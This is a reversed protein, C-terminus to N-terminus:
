GNRWRVLFDLNTREVESMAGVIQADSLAPDPEYWSQSELYSNMPEGSFVRGHRAYLENIALQIEGTTLGSVDAETLLRQDSPLAWRPAPTPQSHVASPAEDEQWEALAALITATGAEAWNQVAAPVTHLAEAARGRLTMWTGSQWLWVALVAATGAALPAALGKRGKGCFPCVPNHSPFVHRRDARCRRLPSYYLRTLAQVWEAATPRQCIVDLATYATYDFARVFLARIDDPLFGMRPSLPSVARGRVERVYACNGNVIEGQETIGSASSMTQNTTVCNFPHFGNFLLRFIQIALSFRDSEQTFHAGPSALNGCTQLEPALVEALGVQCPFHEGTQPSWIDCSDADVVTVQGRANVMLNKQNMDGLVIGRQHLGDVVRALNLAVLVSKRWTYRFFVKDQEGQRWVDYLRHSATALPMVYGVMAGDRFLVDVPWAVRLWLGEWAPVGLSLMCELKRRLQERHGPERELTREHYLKAVLGPCFRIRYVAGEGGVGDSLVTGLTYNRRSGQVIQNSYDM